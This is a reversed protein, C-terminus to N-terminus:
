FWLKNLETKQVTITGASDYIDGYYLDHVSIYITASNANAAFWSIVHFDRHGRANKYAVYKLIASAALGLNTFIGLDEARDGDDNWDWNCDVKWVNM